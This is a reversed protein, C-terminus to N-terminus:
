KHKRLFKLAMKYAEDETSWKIEGDVEVRQMGVSAYYHNGYPWKTIKIDEKTLTEEPFAAEDKKKVGEVCPDKGCEPFYSGNQRVYLPGFNHFVEVVPAILKDCLYMLDTIINGDSGFKYRLTFFIAQEMSTRVHYDPNKALEQKLAIYERALQMERQQVYWMLTKGDEIKLLWEGRVKVFLYTDPSFWQNTHPDWDLWAPKEKIKSM